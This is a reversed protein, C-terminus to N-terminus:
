SLSRQERVPGLDANEHFQAQSIDQQAEAIKVVIGRMNKELRHWLSVGVLGVTWRGVPIFVLRSLSHNLHDSPLKGSLPHFSWVHKQDPLPM